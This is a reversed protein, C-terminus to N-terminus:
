EYNVEMDLLIYVDQNELATARAIHAPMYRVDGNGLAADFGTFNRPEGAFRVAIQPTGTPRERQVYGM